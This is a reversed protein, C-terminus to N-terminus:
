RDPGGPVFTQGSRPVFPGRSELAAEEGGLTQLLARTPEAQLSDEFAGVFVRYLATDLADRVVYAPAGAQDFGAAREGAARTDTFAGVAFGLPAPRVFWEDWADMLGTVVMLDMVPLAAEFTEAAGAFVRFESGYSLRSISIFHPRTSPDSPDLRALHRRAAALTPYGGVLVSWGGAVPIDAPSLVGALSDGPMEALATDPAPDGAPTPPGEPSSDSSGEPAGDEPGPATAAPVDGAASDLAGAVASAIRDFLAGGLLALVPASLAVLALLAARFFRGGQRREAEPITEAPPLAPEPQPEERADVPQLKPEPGGEVLEALPEAEAPPPDPELEPEPAPPAPEAEPEVIEALVELGGGVTAAAGGFVVIGDLAEALRPPVPESDCCVVLLNGGRVRVRNAFEALREGFEAPSEEVNEPSGAPLFTYAGGARIVAVDRFRAHGHLVSLLGEAGGAGLFADLSRGATPMTALLTNERGHGVGAAFADVQPATQDESGARYVLVVSKAEPALGRGLAGARAAGGADPPTDGAARTM